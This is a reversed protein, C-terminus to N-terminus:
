LRRMTTNLQTLWNWLINAIAQCTDPHYYALNMAFRCEEAERRLFQQYEEEASMEAGVKGLPRTICGDQNMAIQGCIHM